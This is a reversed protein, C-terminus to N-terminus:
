DVDSVPAVAARLARRARALRRSATERRIGYKSAVAGVSWGSVDVLFVMAFDDGAAVNAMQEFTVAEVVEREVDVQRDIMWGPEYSDFGQLGQDLSFAVTVRTGDAYRSRSGECRQTRERRHHDVVRSGVSARVYVYPSPYREMTEAPNRLFAVAMDQAIDDATDRDAQHRRRALAKAESLIM